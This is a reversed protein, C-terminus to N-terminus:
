RQAVRSTLVVVQALAPDPRYRMTMEDGATGQAFVMNVSGDASVFRHRAVAALRIPKQQDITAEIYEPATRVRMVWGNSLEYDGGIQKADDPRVWYARAPATVQVTNLAAAGSQPYPLQQAGASAALMLLSAPFLLSAPRM